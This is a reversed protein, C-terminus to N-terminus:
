GRVRGARQASCRAPVHRFPGVNDFFAENSPREAISDLGNSLPVAKQFAEEGQPVDSALSMPPTFALSAPRNELSDASRREGRIVM